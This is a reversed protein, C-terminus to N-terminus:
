ELISFNLSLSLVADHLWVSPVREFLLLAYVMKGVKGKYM